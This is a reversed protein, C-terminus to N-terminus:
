GHVFRLAPLAMQLFLREMEAPELPNKSELWWSLLELKV